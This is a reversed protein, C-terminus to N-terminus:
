PQVFRCFFSGISSRPPITQVLALVMLRWSNSDRTSSAIGVLRRVGARVVEKWSSILRWTWCAAAALALAASVISALSFAIEDLCFSIASCIVSRM